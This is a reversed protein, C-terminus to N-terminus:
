CLLFAEPTRIWTTKFKKNCKLNKKINRTLDTISIQGNNELCLKGQKGKREIEYQAATGPHDIIVAYQFLVVAACCTQKM